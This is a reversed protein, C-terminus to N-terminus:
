NAKVLIVPTGATYGDGNDLTIKVKFNNRQDELPPIGMLLIEGGSLSRGIIADEIPVGQADQLSFIQNLTEGPLFTKDHSRYTSDSTIDIAVVTQKGEPDPPSCAYSNPLLGAASHFSIFEQEPLLWVGLRDWNVSDNEVVTQRNYFFDIRGNDYTGKVGLVELGVINYSSTSFPGCCAIALTLWIVYLVIVQFLRSM